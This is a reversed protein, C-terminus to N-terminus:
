IEDTPKEAIKVPVGAKEAQQIMNQTGKGGPFAVVLDPKGELLMRGNRIHGAAKGHAKWDAPYGEYEWGCYKAYVRALWDAGKAEGAIITIPQKEDLNLEEMTDFLLQLDDFERGGCVLIRM